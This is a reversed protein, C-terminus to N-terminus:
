PRGRRVEGRMRGRRRAEPVPLLDQDAGSGAVTRAARDAVPDGPSGCQGFNPGPGCGPCYDPYQPDDPGWCCNRGWSKGFGKQCGPNAKCDAQSDVWQCGEKADCVEKATKKDTAKASCDPQPGTTPWDM